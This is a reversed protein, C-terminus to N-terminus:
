PGNGNKDAKAVLEKVRDLTVDANNSSLAEFIEEASLEGDGDTDMEDFARSAARQEDTEDPTARPSFAGHMGTM